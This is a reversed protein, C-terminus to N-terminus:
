NKSPFIGELAICWSLVTYPHRNEHWQSGGANAVSSPELSILSGPQAYANNSGALLAGNPMPQSADNSTGQLTHPHLPMETQTLTHTEEGGLEGQAWQGGIDLPVRGRLDPLGFSTRGDGGYMTGLVSFLAQSIQMLQGDCTAWSKPAFNFSMLRLEGIFAESV